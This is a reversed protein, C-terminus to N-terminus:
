FLAHCGYKIGTGDHDSGGPTYSDKLYPAVDNEKEYNIFNFELRQRECLTLKTLVTNDFTCPTQIDTPLNHFHRFVVKLVVVLDVHGLHFEHEEHIGDLM